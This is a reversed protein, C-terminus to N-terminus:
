QNALENYAAEFNQAASRPFRHENQFVFEDDPSPNTKNKLEDWKSSWITYHEILVNADEKLNLPLSERNKILLEMVATNHIKLLQADRFRKGNEMYNKYAHASLQWYRVISQLLLILERTQM